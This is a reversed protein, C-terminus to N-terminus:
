THEVLMSEISVQILFRVAAWPLGAHIPDANVAVDGVTKFRDLWKIVLDAQSRVSVQRGIIHATWKKAEVADRKETAAQLVDNFLQASDSQRSSLYKRLLEQDQPPLSTFALFWFDLPQTVNVQSASNYSREPRREDNSGTAPLLTASLTASTRASNTINGASM